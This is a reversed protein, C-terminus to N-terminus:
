SRRRGILSRRCATYTRGPRLGIQLFRCGPQQQDFGPSPLESQPQPRIASEDSRNKSFPTYWGLQDAGFQFHQSSAKLVQRIWGQRRSGRSTWAMGVSWVSEPDKVKEVEENSDYQQWTYRWINSRRELIVYSVALDGEAGILINCDRDDRVEKAPYAVNSLQSDRAGILTLKEAIKRDRFPSDSNVLVIRKQRSEWIPAIRLLGKRSLGSVVNNHYKKHIRRDSPTDGYGFECEPCQL